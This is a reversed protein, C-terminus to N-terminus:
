FYFSFFKIKDRVGERFKPGCGKERKRPGVLVSARGKEKRKPRLGVEGDRGGIEWWKV